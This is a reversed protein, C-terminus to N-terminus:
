HIDTNGEVYTSISRPLLVTFLEKVIESCVFELFEQGLLALLGDSVVNTTNLDALNTINLALQSGSKHIIEIASEILITDVDFKDIDHVDYDGFIESMSELGGCSIIDKKLLLNFIM